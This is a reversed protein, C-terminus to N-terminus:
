IFIRHVSDITYVTYPSSTQVTRNIESLLLPRSSFFDLCYFIRCPVIQNPPAICFTQRENWIKVQVPPIELNDYASSAPLNGLYYLCSLRLIQQQSLHSDCGMLTIDSKLGPFHLLYSVKQSKGNYGISFNIPAHLWLLMSCDTFFLMSGTWSRKYLAKPVIAVVLIQCCAILIFPSQHIEM